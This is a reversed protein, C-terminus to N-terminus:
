SLRSPANEGSKTDDKALEANDKVLETSTYDVINVDEFSM